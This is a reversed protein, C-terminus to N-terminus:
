LIESGPFASLAEDVVKSTKARGRGSAGEGRGADPTFECLIRVTAGTEEAIATAVLSRREDSKMQDCHFEHNFGLTLVGKELTLPHAERLFATLAVHRQDRLRAIIADWAERIEIVTADSGASPAATNPAAPSSTDAERKVRPEAAVPKPAAPASAATPRSPAREAPRSRPAPPEEAAVRADLCIRVMCLELALRQRAVQRMERETEGLMAVTRLIQEQSVSRAAAGLRERLEPGLLCEGDGERCVKVVLLNRWHETLESVLQRLDKGEAVIQDVLHFLGDLDQALMLESLRELLVIDIGGLIAQVDDVTIENGAYAITQDLLSLGDRNSGDAARALLAIAPAAITLGESASVSQLLTTLDAVGARRFDFRQCRSLITPPLRHPETTCLVFIVRPPPEELTKLL